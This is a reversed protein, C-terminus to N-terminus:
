AIVGWRRRSKERAIILGLGAIITLSMFGGSSISTSSSHASSIGDPHSAYISESQFSDFEAATLLLDLIPDLHSLVDPASKNVLVIAGYLKQPSYEQTFYMHGTFGIEIGSHGQTASDHSNWLWGLGYHSGSIPEHMLEIMEERLIRVGNYIGGNMHAILFHSLDQVTSRLGGCGLPWPNYHPLPLLTGTTANIVHPVALRDLEFDTYNYGTSEMRLPSFIHESFYEELSQKSILEILLGLLGFGTNSYVYREGPRWYGWINPNSSGNPFFHQRFWELIPPYTANTLGLQRYLDQRCCYVYYDENTGQLSSRHSLLMRFTIIDNPYNPNRVPFPLYYNVDDDLDIVSRENLKLIATATFSKTISGIAYITDAAPQDGYGNAWVLRNEQIIAAALSPIEGEQMHQVIQEDLSQNSDMVKGAAPVFLSSSIFILSIPVGLAM